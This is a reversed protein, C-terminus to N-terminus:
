GMGTIQARGSNPSGSTQPATGFGFGTELAKHDDGFGFQSGEGAQQAAQAAAAAQQDKLQQAQQGALDKQANAAQQSAEYNAIGVGASAVAAVATVVAATVGM